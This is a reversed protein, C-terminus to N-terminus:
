GEGGFQVYGGAAQEDTKMNDDSNAAQDESVAGPPSDPVVPSSLLGETANNYQDYRSQWYGRLETDGAKLTENDRLGTLECLDNLPHVYTLNPPLQKTSVVNRRQQLYTTRPSRKVRWRKAVEPLM